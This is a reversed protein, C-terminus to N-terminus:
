GEGIVRDIRYRDALVRRVKAIEIEGTPMTRAPVGPETPTALGCRLCFRAEDPLSASCAPCVRAATAM